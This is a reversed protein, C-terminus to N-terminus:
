NGPPRPPEDLKRIEPIEPIIYAEKGARSDNGPLYGLDLINSMTQMRENIIPVVGQRQMAFYTYKQDLIVFHNAAFTNGLVHIMADVFMQKEYAKLFDPDLDTAQVFYDRSAEYNKLDFADLGNSYALFADSNQTSINKIADKIKPNVTLNLQMIIKKLIDTGITSFDPDEKTFQYQQVNNQDLMDIMSLNFTTNLGPKIQYTGGILYRARLISGIGRIINDEILQQRTLNLKNLLIQLERREVVEIEDSLALDSSLIDAMGKGINDWKADYDDNVFYIMALRNPIPPTYTMRRERDIAADIGEVLDLQTTTFYKVENFQKYPADYPLIEHYKFINRALDTKGLVELNQGAYFIACSNYDDLKLVRKAMSFSEKYNQLMYYSIFGGTLARIDQSADVGGSELIIKSYEAAAKEYDQDKLYQDAASYKDAAYLTAQIILLFLMLFLRYRKM